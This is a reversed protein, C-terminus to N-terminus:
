LNCPENMWVFFIRINNINSMQYGDEYYNTDAAPSTKADYM